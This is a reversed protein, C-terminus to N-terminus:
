ARAANSRCQEVQVMQLLITTPNLLENDRGVAYLVPAYLPLSRHYLDRDFLGIMMVPAAVLWNWLTYWTWGYLPTGTFACYFNYVFSVTTFM